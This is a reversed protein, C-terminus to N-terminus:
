KMCGQALKSVWLGRPIFSKVLNRVPCLWKWSCLNLCQEWSVKFEKHSHLLTISYVMSKKRWQVFKRMGLCVRKWFCLFMSSLIKDRLSVWVKKYTLWFLWELILLIIMVGKVAFYTYIYAKRANKPKQM